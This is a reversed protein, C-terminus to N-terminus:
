AASAAGAFGSVVSFNAINNARSTDPPVDLADGRDKTPATDLPPPLGPMPLSLNAADVRIRCFM